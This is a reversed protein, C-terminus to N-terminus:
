RAAGGAGPSALRDERATQEKEAEIDLSSPGFSAQTLNFDLQRYDLMNEIGAITAMDDAIDACRLLAVGWFEMGTNYAKMADQWLDRNEEFIKEYTDKTDPMYRIPMGNYKIYLGVRVWRMVAATMMLQQGPDTALSQLALFKAITVKLDDPISYLIKEGSM